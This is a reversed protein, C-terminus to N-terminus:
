LNKEVLKMPENILADTEFVQAIDSLNGIKLPYPGKPNAQKFAIRWEYQWAYDDFKNYIDMKGHHKNRDLYSVQQSARGKELESYIDAQESLASQLRREFEVINSGAILVARNGFKKFKDSLFLGEDGADLINGDSIRTMSYINTEGERNYRVDVKGIAGELTHDGFKITLEEAKYSAALGEHVDGRLAEGADEYDKFFDINNMFLLGENIFSEVYQEDMFKILIRYFKNPDEM